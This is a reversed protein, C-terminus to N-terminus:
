AHHLNFLSAGGSSSAVIKAKKAPKDDRKDRRDDHWEIFRKFGAIVVADVLIAVVIPLGHTEFAQKTAAFLTSLAYEWAM